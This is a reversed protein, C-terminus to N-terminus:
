WKDQLEAEKSSGSPNQPFQTDSSPKINPYNDWGTIAM